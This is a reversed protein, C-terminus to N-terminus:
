KVRTGNPIDREPILLVVNREDGAALIMAESKVGRITAPELNAIVVVKKGVLEQPRYSLAIGAVATRQEDGLNITLQILKDAGPVASADNIEGIRLDLKQFEEITVVSEEGKEAQKGRSPKNVRPFIPEGRSVKTGPPLIGWESVDEWRWSTSRLSSADSNRLTADAAPKDWGLQEMMAQAVSPMVPSILVATQRIGEAISYMVSDLEEHNGQKALTWPAQQDIYKNLGAM